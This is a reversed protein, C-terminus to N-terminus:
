VRTFVLQFRNDTLTPMLASAASSSHTRWPTEVSRLSIAKKLVRHFGSGVLCCLRLLCPGPSGGPEQLSDGCGGGRRSVM